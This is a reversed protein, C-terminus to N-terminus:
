TAFQFRSTLLRFSLIFAVIMIAAGIFFPYRIGLLDFMWGGILPGIIRALSGASQSVGMVGGVDEAASAQSILSQLSPTNLGSGFALLILILLLVTISPSFPILLLGLGMCSTGIIILKNEGYRRALKGVIMGQNLAILVGIYAFIYSNMKEHIGLAAEGWLAFTSEMASFATTALLLILLLLGIRPNSLADKIYSANLRSKYLEQNVSSRHREPEPLLFYALVLNVMGLAAAFYGPLAYINGHLLAQMWRISLISGELSILIGSIAPGFVFGLGLGAGILGMGKARDESTTVDAIYAQATAIKAGAIGQVIRSIFLVLLSGALGFIVFSVVTGAMNILLIVRRGYRDSLRGWLPSFLLQMLSYVSFLAAIVLGEPSMQIGFFHGIAQIDGAFTKGYYPLLPIIIGFGVMDIFVVIFLLVLASTSKKM